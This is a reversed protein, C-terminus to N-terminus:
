VQSMTRVLEGDVVKDRNVVLVRFLMAGSLVVEPLTVPTETFMDREM